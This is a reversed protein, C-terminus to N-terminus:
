FDPVLVACKIFMEAVLTQHSKRETVTLRKVSIKL